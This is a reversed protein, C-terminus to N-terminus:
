HIYYSDLEKLESTFKVRKCHKCVLKKRTEQLRGFYDKIKTGPKYTFTREDVAEFEHKGNNFTCVIKGALLKAKVKIKFFNNKMM